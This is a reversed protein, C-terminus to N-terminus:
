QSIVLFRIRHSQLLRQMINKNRREHQIHNDSNCRVYIAMQNSPAIIFHMKLSSALYISILDRKAYVRSLLTSQLIERNINITLRSIPLATVKLFISLNDKLNISTISELHCAAECSSVVIMITFSTCIKKRLCQM